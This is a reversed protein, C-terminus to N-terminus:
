QGLLQSLYGSQNNLKQIASDMANFKKYYRAEVMKLRDQFTSMRQTLSDLDKGLGYEKSAMTTSGAKTQISKSFASLSNKIRHIIGQEKYQQQAKDKDKSDVNLSGSMFIQSIKQPDEQIAKRLKSEDIVLKGGDKYKDSTAIGIQTMHIKNGDSTTIDVYFDSRIKSAGSRLISDSRLLGSKATTEWLEVEKDSMAKKEEATLPYYDRNRKENVKGNIEEVLENYKDVFQKIKDFIADVDTSVNLSVPKDTTGKLEYTIGAQTFTNNNNEMKLGNIEYQAKQGQTTAVLKNDGDVQFGLQTLFSASNGDAAKISVGEGTTRSTLAITDVYNTGDFIQGKYATVGLQSSNLKTVITDLTDTDTTNITVTKPTTSDPTTVEFTFTGNAATFGSTGSSKFVSATALQTVNISGSTANTSGTATVASENSSTVKKAGYTTPRTLNLSNILDDLEKVKSNVERYSDRQWELTQKQRTMKDLPAQETKMLKSVIEDIDFVNSFGTIRNVM